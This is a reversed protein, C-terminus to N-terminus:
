VWRTLVPALERLETIVAEPQSRGAPVGHNRRWVTRMGLAHAGDIDDIPRDGVMAVTAPDTVGLGDLAARFAEPHPKIHALESTYRRVDILDALGDRVLFREHWERPWHTNSLMGTRLGMGRLRRLVAPAEPEARTYREFGQLHADMAEAILEEPVNVGATTAASRLVEDLTASRLTATCRAWSEAEAELLARALPAPDDPSLVRAAALWLPLLDVRHQPTLTGGWDLLVAVLGM